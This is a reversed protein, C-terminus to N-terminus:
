TRAATLNVIPGHPHQPLDEVIEIKQFGAATLMGQLGELTPWFSDPSMGSLPDSLGFEQYRRGRLGHATADAMEESAYHTSLFLHPSVRVTQEILKWPEPLHYLLGCCYIADFLGLTTLDTTELNATVFEVNKIGLLGQVYRAREVNTERGEIGLVSAVSPHSALVFTHGRWVAWSLFEGPTLSARFFQGPRRDEAIDYGGGYAKGEIVFKTIWPEWRQFGKEVSSM